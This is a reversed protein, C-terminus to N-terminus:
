AAPPSRSACSLLESSSQTVDVYIPDISQVTALAAAQNATVLAGRDRDLPRHARFDALRDARLATSGARELAARAGGRRSRCAQRCGRRERPGAQEGRRDERAGSIPAREPDRDRADGGRACAGGEREHCRGPLHRRRAPLPAAPRSWGARTFLLEKVIGTVAPASRGHPLSEDQGATRALAHSERDQAHGRGSRGPADGHRPRLRRRAPALSWSGALSLTCGTSVIRSITKNM